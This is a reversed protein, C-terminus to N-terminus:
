NAGRGGRRGRRALGAAWLELDAAGLNQEVTFRGGRQVEVGAFGRMLEAEIGLVEGLRQGEPEVVGAGSNAGSGGYYTLGSELLQKGGTFKVGEQGV